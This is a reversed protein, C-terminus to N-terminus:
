KIFDRFVEINTQSEPTNNKMFTYVGLGNGGCPVHVLTVGDIHSFNCQLGSFDLLMKEVQDVSATAAINDFLTIHKITSFGYSRDNSKKILFEIKINTLKTFPTVINEKSSTGAPAQMATIAQVGILLVFGFMTKKNFNM